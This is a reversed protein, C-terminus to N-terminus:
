READATDLEFWVVTDHNRRVGWRTALRDLLRLGWGSEPSDPFSATKPDFGPGRDVVDVHVHDDDARV